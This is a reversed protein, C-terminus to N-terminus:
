DGLPFSDVNTTLLSQHGLYFWAGYKEHFGHLDTRSPLMVFHFHGVTETHFSTLSHLTHRAKVSFTCLFYTLKGNLSLLLNMQARNVYEVTKMSGASQTTYM